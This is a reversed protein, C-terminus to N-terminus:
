EANAARHEELRREYEARVETMDLEKVQRILDVLAERPLMGPQAFIPIQERFVAITPISRIGFAQALAPQDQTNVKAFVIDEYEESTAEFIPGFTRCPGCWPAWFDLLVIDNDEITADFNETNLEVTAM